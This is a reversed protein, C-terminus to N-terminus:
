SVAAAPQPLLGRVLHEIREISRFNAPTMDRETVEIDFATEVSLMLNVLGLSSLGKARLDDEAGISAPAQAGFAKRVLAAVRESVDDHTPNSSREIRELV